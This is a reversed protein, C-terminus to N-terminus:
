KKQKGREREQDRLAATLAHYMNYIGVAAGAFVGLILLIPSTGLKGDLWKGLYMLAVISAALQIGHGAFAAPSPASSRKPPASPRGAPRRQDRQEQDAM